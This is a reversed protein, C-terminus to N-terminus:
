SGHIGWVYTAFAHAFPISFAPDAHAAGHGHLIWFDTVLNCNMAIAGGQPRGDSIGRRSLTNRVSCMRGAKVFDPTVAKTIKFLQQALASRGHGLRCTPAVGPERCSAQTAVTQPWRRAPVGTAGSCAHANHWFTGCLFLLIINIYYQYLVNRLRPNMFCIHYYYNIIIYYQYLVNSLYPQYYMSVYYQYLANRM